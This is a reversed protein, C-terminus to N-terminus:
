RTNLNKNLNSENDKKYPCNKCNNKCCYGRKLLYTETFVFLGTKEDIYYDVDKILKNSPAPEQQATKSNWKM